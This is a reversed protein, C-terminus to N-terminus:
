AEGDSTGPPEDPVCYQSTGPEIVNFDECTGAGCDVDSQCSQTCFADSGQFRACTRTECQFQNDISCSANDESACRAERANSSQPDLDCPSYLDPACGTVGCALALGGLARCISRRVYKRRHDQRM